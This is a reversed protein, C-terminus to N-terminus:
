VGARVALRGVAGGAVVLVAAGGEQLANVDGVAGGAVGVQRGGVAPVTEGGGDVVEVAVVRREALPAAPEAVGARDAEVVADVQLQGVRELVDRGLPEPGHGFREPPELLLGAGGAVLRVRVPPVHLRDAVLVVAGGAVRQRGPRRAVPRVLRDAAPVR